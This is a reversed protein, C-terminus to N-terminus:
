VKNEFKISYRHITDVLARLAKKREYNTLLPKITSQHLSILLKKDEDAVFVSDPNGRIHDLDLILSICRALEFRISEKCKGHYKALLKTVKIPLDHEVIRNVMGEENLREACMLILNLYQIVSYEQVGEMENQVEFFDSIAFDIVDSAHQILGAIDFTQIVEVAMLCYKLLRSASQEFIYMRTQLSLPDLLPSTIVTGGKEVSYQFKKYDSIMRLLLNAKSEELIYRVTYEEREWLTSQHVRVIHSGHSSRDKSASAVGNSSASSSKVKSASNGSRSTIINSKKRTITSAQSHSSATDDTGQSEHDDMFMKHELSAVKALSEILNTFELWGEYINVHM